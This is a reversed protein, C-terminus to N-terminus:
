GKQRVIITNGDEEIGYFDMPRSAPGTLVNGKHDFESGHCPCIFKNGDTNLTCGLHTCKLSYAQITNEHRVIAIHKNRNLVMGEAPLTTKDIIWLADSRPIKINFYRYLLYLPFLWIIKLFARKVRDVNEM